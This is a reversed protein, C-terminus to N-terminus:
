SLLSTISSKEVEAFMTPLSVNKTRVGKPINRNQWEMIVVKDLFFDYWLYTLKQQWCMSSARLTFYM